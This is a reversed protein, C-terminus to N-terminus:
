VCYTNQQSRKLVSINCVFLGVYNVDVLDYKYVSAYHVTRIYMKDSVLRAIRYFETNCPAIRSIVDYRYSTAM